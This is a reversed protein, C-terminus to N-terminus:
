NSSKLPELLNNATSDKIIRSLYIKESLTYLVQVFYNSQEFAYLFFLSVGAAVCYVNLTFKPMTNSISIMKDFVESLHLSKVGKEM